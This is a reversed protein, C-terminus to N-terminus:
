CFASLSRAAPWRVSLDSIPQKSGGGKSPFYRSLLGDTDELLKEPLCLNGSKLRAM